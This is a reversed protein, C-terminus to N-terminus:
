GGLLGDARAKAVAAQHEEFTVSFTHSGDEASLVYFKFDSVAPSAAAQLSALGPASIPTPPLGGVRYTNYPSDADLNISRPDRSNVAYLVTADIELRESDRLRNRIVSSVLPREDAVRVESEILSAIVIGQYRTFGAAELVSWDVSGMRDEMTRAMRNLIDAASASQAFEYTDPFLLGEWDSLTAEPPLERLGTTVSGDALVTAFEEESKGTETALRTIIEGVRLGEPITIRLVRTVPGRVLLTLVEDPNMLTFLDYTGAQLSNAVGSTRALAEFQTASRIVGNLELIESIQSTTSGLPIDIVVALGPEVDVDVGQSTEDFRSGVAGALASAAAVVGVGALAVMAVIVLPRAVRLRSLPSQPLSM